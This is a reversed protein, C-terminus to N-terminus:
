ERAGVLRRAIETLEEQGLGGERDESGSMRVGVIYDDGVKRRIAEYVELSFRMRNELSGGYRDRRKNILPTWFQDMLHGYAIVEIGDLGGQKTRLAADAYAAVIRRIDEEEMEKPFARHMPERVLSPAVVPLWNEVDWRTRRGMHTLQCMIAAGHSHVRDAMQQYYPIIEDDGAYLQGFAAPSDPAVNTSGGFMTLALGGKAKEEHYLQYRMKPLADDAYAPEHSTSMIRNKLTLHKLQFPQLLPDSSM